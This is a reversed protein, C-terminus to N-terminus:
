LSNDDYSYEVFQFNFENSLRRIVYGYKGSIWDRMFNTPAKLILTKTDLNEEAILKSFWAKDIDLGLEEILGKRIKYWSSNKDVARLPYQNTEDSSKDKSERLSLNNRKFSNFISNNKNTESISNFKDNIENPNIIQIDIDNGYVSKIANKLIEEKRTTLVIKNRFEISFVSDCYSFYSNILIEYAKKNELLGAIKRKLQMEYSTDYSNEVETLFREITKLDPENNNKTANNNLNYSLRFTEHNVLPGQHLEYKFAKTMYKKMHNKTAFKNEPFKSILKLMLQNAFNTSFERGSDWNISCVEGKTLPYYCKLTKNQDYRKVKNAKANSEVATKKITTNTETRIATDRTKDTANCFVRNRKNREKTIDDNITRSGLESHINSSSPSTDIVDKISNKYFKSPFSCLENELHWINSTQELTPPSDLNNENTQENIYDINKISIRKEKNKIIIAYLNASSPKCIQVGTESATYTYPKETSKKSDAAEIQCNPIVLPNISITFISKDYRNSDIDDSNTYKHEATIFFDPAQNKIYQLINFLTRKSINNKQILERSTAAFSLNGNIRYNKYATIVCNFFFLKYKNSMPNDFLSKAFEITIPVYLKTRLIHELNSENALRSSDGNHKDPEYKIYEYLDDPLMPIIENIKDTGKKTKGRTVQLLGIQELKKTIRLAISRMNSKNKSKYGLLGAIKESSYIISEKGKSLTSQYLALVQSFFVIDRPSLEKSYQRLIVEFLCPIISIYQKNNDPTEKRNQNLSSFLEPDNPLIPLQTQLLNM